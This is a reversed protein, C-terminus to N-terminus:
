YYLIALLGHLCALAVALWALRRHHALKLKLRARFLGVLFTALVVSFTAIGLPKVLESFEM